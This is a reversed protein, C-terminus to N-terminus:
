RGLKEDMREIKAEMRILSTNLKENIARQEAYFARAEHLMKEQYEVAKQLATIEKDQESNKISVTSALVSFVITTLLAVISIVITKWGSGNRKQEEVLIIQSDNAPARNPM